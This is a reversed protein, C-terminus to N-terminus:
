ERLQFPPLQKGSQGCEQAYGHHKSYAEVVKKGIFAFTAHDSNHALIFPHTKGLPRAGLIHLVVKLTEVVPGGLAFEARKQGVELVNCHFFELGM